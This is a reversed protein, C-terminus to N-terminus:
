KKYVKEGIGWLMFIIAGLEFIILGLLILIM